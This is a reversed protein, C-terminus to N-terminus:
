QAGVAERLRELYDHHAEFISMEYTKRWRVRGFASRLLTYAKRADDEDFFGRQWDAPIDDWAELVVGNGLFRFPSPIADFSLRPMDHDVAFGLYAILFDLHNALRRRLDEASEKSAPKERWQNYREQRFPFSEIDLHTEMQSLIDIHALYRNDKQHWHSMGLAWALYRHGQQAQESDYFCSKWSQPVDHYSKVALGNVAFTFPLAPEDLQVTGANSRVADNFYVIWYQVHNRVRAILEEETERSSPTRRWQNWRPDRHNTAHIAADSPQRLPESTSPRPFSFGLFLLPVPLGVSLKV